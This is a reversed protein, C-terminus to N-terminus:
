IPGVSPLPGSVRPIQRLRAVFGRLELLLTKAFLSTGETRHPEDTGRLIPRPRAPTKCGPDKFTLRDDVGCAEIHRM